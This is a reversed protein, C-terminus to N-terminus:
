IYIYIYADRLSLIGLYHQVRNLSPEGGVFTPVRYLQNRDVRTNRSDVVLYNCSGLVMM